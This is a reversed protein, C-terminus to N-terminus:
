LAYPRFLAPRSALLRCHSCGDFRTADDAFSVRDTHHSFNQKGGVTDFVIACLEDAPIQKGSPTLQCAVLAIALLGADAGAMAVCRRSRGGRTAPPEREVETSGWQSRFSGAFGRAGVECRRAPWRM